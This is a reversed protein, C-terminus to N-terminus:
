IKQKLWSWYNVLEHAKPILKNLQDCLAANDPYDHTLNNRIERLDLWWNADDLYYLKELHNLKDIFTLRNVSSTELYPELIEPFIQAGITDQLKSFRTTLLDFFALEEISAQAFTTM